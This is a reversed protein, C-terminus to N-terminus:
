EIYDDYIMISKQSFDIILSSDALKQIEELDELSDVSVFVKNEDKYVFYKDLINKYKPMLDESYWCSAASFEFLM